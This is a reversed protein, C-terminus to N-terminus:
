IEKIYLFINKYTIFKKTKLYLESTENELVRIKNEDVMIAVSSDQANVLESINIFDLEKSLLIINKMESDAIIEEWTMETIKGREVQDLLYERYSVFTDKVLNYQNELLFRADETMDNEYEEYHSEVHDMYLNMLKSIAPWSNEDLYKFVPDKWVNFQEIYDRYFAVVFGPKWPQKKYTNLSIEIEIEHDLWKVEDGKIEQPLKHGAQALAIEALKIKQLSKKYEPTDLITMITGDDITPEPIDITDTNDDDNRTQVTDEPSTPVLIDNNKKTCSIFITLLIFNLVLFKM